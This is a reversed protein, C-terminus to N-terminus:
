RNEVQMQMIWPELALLIADTAGSFAGVTDGAAGAMQRLLAPDSLVGHLAEALSQADHVELAGHAEDLARYVEAFNAVHPGHLVTAGLKAAEIPNQGGSAGGLSKGVFVVNALRYFLGLEGMTDAVYFATGSDLSNGLSRQVAAIGRRAALGAIEAGRIAHRPAVITLLNPMAQRLMAHVEAAIVEEGPHTSAALWVPRAGIAVRLRALETSDVPLAAVDYKLNGAVQVRPAGLYEFRRADDETQALTLDVRSLMARILGPAKLWREFSRQSLRANVLMLPISRAHVEHLLNPWLESEAILVLNPRWHELFRRVFRPADWPVYQHAAGAPLRTELIAASSTTGTTLLVRFGRATMREVVPMLALSEGVSAGHLWALREGPRTLSAYGLRERLRSGDEKGRALRWQLLLPALPSLGATLVRYASMM